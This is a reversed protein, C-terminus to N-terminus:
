KPQSVRVLRLSEPDFWVEGKEARLECVLEIEDDPAAADFEYALNMWSANGVISNTRPIQSGHIRLGAGDGKKDNKLPVIGSGRARGEFRYHGGELLIKSRWSAATNTTTLIHLSTHGDSNTSRDLRALNPQNELHWQFLKAINNTFQIPKPEGTALQKRIDVVRQTIRDKVGLSQTRFENVLAKDYARLAPTVAAVIADVRNSLASLNFTNSFIIGFRDRYLHRGQPVRLLSQALLGAMPPRIAATPNQFMQDTGHPFFLIKNSDRDYYIRFNNRGLAYGDWHCTMVEMAIFSIFRDVDLLKQLETWRKVLDPEQAAVALAKLDAWDDPGDGMDKKLKETIERGPDMDYLNGNTKKFYLGLFDKTFGEKLVFLGLHKGNLDVLAHVARTAPVNAARFLEGAIIENLYSGDQVSNNLHIKRLGHFRQNPNFQNFSLTFSPKEELQRFSGAAGKLHLGVDTYAKEEEVITARVYKRNDKKLADVDADSIQIDIHVPISNSFLAAATSLRRQRIDDFSDRGSLRPTFVLLLVCWLVSGLATTVTLPERRERSCHRIAVTHM